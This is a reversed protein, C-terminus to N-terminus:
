GRDARPARHRPARRRDARRGLDRRDAPRQPGGDGVSGAAHGPPGDDGDVRRQSIAFVGAVGAAPRDARGPPRCLPAFPAPRGLVRGPRRRPERRVVAMASPAGTGVPRGVRRRRPLAAGAVRRVRRRGRRDHGLAPLGPRGDGSARTPRDGRHRRRSPGGGLRRRPRGPALSPRRGVGGNSRRRRATRRHGGLGPHRDPARGDSSRGDLPVVGLTAITGAATTVSASGSSSRCPSSARWSRRVSSRPRPGPAVSAGGGVM